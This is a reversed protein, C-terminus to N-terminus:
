CETKLRDKVSVDTATVKKGEKMSGKMQNNFLNSTREDCKGSIM